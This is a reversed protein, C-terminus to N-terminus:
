AVKGKTAVSLGTATTLIATAAAVATIWIDVDALQKPSSAWTSTASAVSGAYTSMALIFASGKLMMDTAGAGVSVFTVPDLDIANATAEVNGASTLRVEAQTVGSGSGYVVVEGAACSPVHDRDHEACIIAGEGRGYPSVMLVEAGVPPRSRFGYHQWSEVGEFSDEGPGAVKGMSDSDLGAGLVGRRVVSGARLVARGVEKRIVELLTSM